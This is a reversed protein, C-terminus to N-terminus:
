ETMDQIEHVAGRLSGTKQWRNTLFNIFNRRSVSPAPNRKILPHYLIFQPMFKGPEM